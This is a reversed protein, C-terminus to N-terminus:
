SSKQKEENVKKLEKQLEKICSRSESIVCYDSDDIKSSLYELLCIFKKIYYADM